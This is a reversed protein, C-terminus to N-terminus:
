GSPVMKKGGLNSDNSKMPGLTKMRSSFAVGPTSELIAVMVTPSLGLSFCVSKAELGFHFFVDSGTLYEVDFRFCRRLLDPVRSVLSIKSRFRGCGFVLHVKEEDSSLYRGRLTTALELRYTCTLTLATESFTASQYSIYVAERWCVFVFDSVIELALMELFFPYVHTRAHAFTISPDSRGQSKCVVPPTYKHKM